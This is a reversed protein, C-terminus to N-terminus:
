RVRGQDRVRRWEEPTLRFRLQDLRSGDLVSRYQFKLTGEYIWGQAKYNFIAPFNRSLPAGCLKAVGLRNFCHDILAARAENVVGKGWWTKDGIAVNFMAVQNPRDIEILFYGIHLDSPKVFIGVLFRTENDFEAAYNALDHLTVNRVAANIPRLVEPDKLWRQWRESADSARLSRLRFRSTEL